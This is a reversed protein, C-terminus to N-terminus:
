AGIAHMSRARGCVIACRISVMHESSLHIHYQIAEYEGPIGPISFSNPTCKEDAAAPYTALVENNKIEFEM